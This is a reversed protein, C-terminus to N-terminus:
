QLTMNLTNYYLIQIFSASNNAFDHLLVLVYIYSTGATCYYPTYLFQITLNHQIVSIKRVGAFVTEANDTETLWETQGNWKGQKFLHCMHGNYKAQRFQCPQLVNSCVPYQSSIHLSQVSRGHQVWQVQKINQCSKQNFVKSVM